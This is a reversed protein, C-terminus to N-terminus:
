KMRKSAFNLLLSITWPATLIVIVSVVSLIVEFMM